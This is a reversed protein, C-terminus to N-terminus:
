RALSVTVIDKVGNQQLLMVLQHLTAGTTYVDDLIIIKKPLKESTKKLHFPNAQKLREQRKKSSQKEIESKKFLDQYSINELFGEVQNFGREKFREKSVPVPVVVYGKTLYPKILNKIENQFVTRLLYDGMFKYRSFYSKMGQNYCYLSLHNPTYGQAIWKQCDLCNVTKSPKSCSSCIEKPLKQFTSKCAQCLSQQRPKFTLLNILNIGEEYEQQCMLCEM